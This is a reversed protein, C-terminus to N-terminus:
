PVVCHAATIFWESNILSGGCFHGNPLVFGHQMDVQWPWSGRVAERGGVIRDVMANGTYPKIDPIGCKTPAPVPYDLFYYKM